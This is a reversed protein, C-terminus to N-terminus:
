ITRSRDASLYALPFKGPLLTLESVDFGGDTVLQRLSDPTFRTHAVFPSVVELFRSLTRRWIDVGHCFTPIVLRGGPRLARRFEILARQPTEMVHLANACFIGDFSGDDVHLEYASMVATTVNHVKEHALKADLRQLMQPSIDTATLREVTAALEFTFQGTGAAVELVDTRGDLDRRMLERVRPYSRAFLEVSRDYGGALRDWRHVETM